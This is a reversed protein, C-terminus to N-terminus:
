TIKNQWWKENHIYWNITRELGKEFTISPQWGIQEQIKTNDIAYRFDHGLRDNVHDILELYSKNNKRPLKSDMVHCIMRVIEINTKESNAGINYAEGIKGKQYVEYIARCHDKVYIWDRVNKGNGYIPLKKEKICNLIMLPILKEPFQFPGYNNSCNTILVPLGYTKYWAIVLHDSAAKSASYPSSPIYRNLENFKKDNIGLSGYVEDTSIHIFRFDKKEKITLNNFYVLSHQLLNGVGVINTNIFRQPKKISNDVHSEAAFNILLSPRFKNIISRIKNSDCIDAQIFEYNENNKISELSSAYTLKDINIIYYNTTELLYNIFNSGIFGAGGTVIVNSKKM